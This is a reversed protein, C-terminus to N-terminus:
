RALKRAVSAMKVRVRGMVTKRIQPRYKQLKRRPVFLREEIASLNRAVPIVRM